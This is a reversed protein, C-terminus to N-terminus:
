SINTILERHSSILTQEEERKERERERKELNGTALDDMCDASAVFTDDARLIVALWSPGKSIAASVAAATSEAHTSAKAGVIEVTIVRRATAKGVANAETKAEAAEGLGTTSRLPTSWISEVCRLAVIVRTRSAAM